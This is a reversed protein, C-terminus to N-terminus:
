KTKEKKERKEKLNDREKCAIWNKKLSNVIIAERIKLVM